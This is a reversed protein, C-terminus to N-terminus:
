YRRFLFPWDHSGTLGIDVNANESTFEASVIAAERHQNHCHTPTTRRVPNRRVAAVGTPTAPM